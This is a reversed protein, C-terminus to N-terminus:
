EDRSFFTLLQNRYRYGAVSLAVIVVLLVTAAYVDGTALLDGFVNVLFFAPARGLIAVLVLRRLPITTLGGAFCLVDDPLGPILFMVFLALLGHRDAVTDFTELADDDFMREAYARGYRRSLWFALTSGVTIGVMNYLTGWWPGFLYGGVVAMVQGPIPALLVQATQLVIFALPAWVGFGDVYHRLARADALLSWYPRLLVVAGVLVLAVITAHILFRRRAGPSRFVPSDPVSVM